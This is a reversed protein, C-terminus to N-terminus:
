EPVGFGYSRFIGRAKEGQLWHYFVKATEGANNTLVMRQKLPAHWDDPILVYDSKESIGPAIALSLAVLGGRTDNSLAFQAAQAVNEGLVQLPASVEWLGLHTLVQRAAIGYPAHEPNALAMRLPEGPVPAELAKRVAVLPEDPSLPTAAENQQLWVLRGIAYIAGEETVNGNEKLALVNAEDASLFLEFPAGQAIQRRFNGSSGFNLRLAEGTEQRFQRAAETVAFQLSSAAAILPPREQGHVQSWGLLFLVMSLM